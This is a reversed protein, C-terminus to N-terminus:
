IGSCSLDMRFVPRTQNSLVTWRGRLALLGYQWVAVILLYLIRVFLTAVSGRGDVLAMGSRESWGQGLATATQDVRDSCYTLHVPLFEAANFVSGSLGAVGNGFLSWWYCAFHAFVHVVTVLSGPLIHDWVLRMVFVQRLACERHLGMIKLLVIPVLQGYRWHGQVIHGIVGFRVVWSVVWSDYCGFTGHLMHILWIM